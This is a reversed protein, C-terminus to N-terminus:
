PATQAPFPPTDWWRPPGDPGDDLLRQLLADAPLALLPRLRAVLERETETLTLRRAALAAEPVEAHSLHVQFTSDTAAWYVIPELNNM